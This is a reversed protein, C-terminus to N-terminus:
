CVEIQDVKGVVVTRIPAAADGVIQRAGNGEDLVLVTEGVGADTAAVAVVYGGIAVGREDVRDVVLLRRRGYAPHHITSVLDGKVVGLFM